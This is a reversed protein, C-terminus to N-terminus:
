AVVVTARPSTLFVSDEMTSFWWRDERCSIRLKCSWLGPFLRLLFRSFTKTIAVPSEIVVLITSDAMCLGM